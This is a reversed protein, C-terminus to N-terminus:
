RYENFGRNGKPRAHRFRIGTPSYGSAYTVKLSGTVGGTVLAEQARM